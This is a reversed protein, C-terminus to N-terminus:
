VQPYFSISWALFYAWGIVANIDTILKSHVVKVDVNVDNISFFTVVLM